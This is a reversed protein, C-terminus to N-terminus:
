QRRVRIGGNVTDLDIRAEGSGINGKLSKGVFGPEVELGFDEANISGNLTQASLRASANEPLHLTIRGNVTDADVHQSGHMSDFHAEISGNTTQLDADGRLNRLLLAGNVSEANTMGSVGSIEVEGNVTSISDLNSAEPVALTYTVQGSNNRGFWRSQSKEHVTDIHISDPQAKIKVILRALDEANDARKEAKIEVTNGTGGVIRVDGNVNELSIRGGESLEFSFTETEKVEALASLSTSLIIVGFLKSAVRM